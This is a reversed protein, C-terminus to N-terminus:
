GRNLADIEAEEASGRIIPPDFLHADERQVRAEAEAREPSPVASATDNAVALRRKDAETRLTGQSINWDRITRIAADLTM